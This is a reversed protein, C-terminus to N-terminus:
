RLLPFPPSFDCRVKFGEAQAEELLVWRTKLENAEHFLKATETRLAELAPRM